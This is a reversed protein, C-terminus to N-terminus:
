EKFFPRSSEFFCFGNERIEGKRFGSPPERGNKRWAMSCDSNM